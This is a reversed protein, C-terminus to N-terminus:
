TPQINLCICSIYSNKPLLTLGKKSSGEAKVCVCAQEEEVKDNTIVVFVPEASLAKRTSQHWRDPFM